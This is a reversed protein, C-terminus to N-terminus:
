IDRVKGSPLIVDVINKEIWAFGPADDNCGGRAKMPKGRVCENFKSSAGVIVHCTFQAPGSIAGPYVGHQGWPGDLDTQGQRNECREVATIHEHGFFVFHAWGRIQQKYIRIWPDNPGYALAPGHKETARDGHSEGPSYIPHHAALYHAKGECRHDLVAKSIFREQADLVKKEVKMDWVATDVLLLCANPFIHLAWYNQYHFWPFTGKRSLKLLFDREEIPYQDHNGGVALFQIGPRWFPKKIHREFQSPNKIGDDYRFDGVGVIFEPMQKDLMKGLKERIEGEKGSDGFIAVREFPRDWITVAAGYSQYFLLYAGAGLALAAAGIVMKIKSGIKKFINM